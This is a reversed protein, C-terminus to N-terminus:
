KRPNYNSIINNVCLDLVKKKEPKNFNIYRYFNLISTQRCIVLELMITKIGNKRFCIKRQYPGLSEIGFEKLMKKISNLFQIGSRIKDQTKNLTLRIGFSAKSRNFKYPKSGDGDFYARLFSSKIEKIGNKIWSPIDYEQIAKDGMPIGCLWLARAVYPPNRLRLGPTDRFYHGKPKVKFIKDLILIIERKILKDPSIFDIGTARYIKNYSHELSGDSLVYGVLEALEKSSFLPLQKIQQLAEIGYFKRYYSKIFKEKSVIIKM